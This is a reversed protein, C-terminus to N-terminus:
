AMMASPPGSLSSFFAVKDISNLGVLDIMQHEFMFKHLKPQQTRTEKTPKDDTKGAAQRRENAHM